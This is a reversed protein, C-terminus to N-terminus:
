QAALATVYANLKAPATARWATEGLRFASRLEAATLARQAAKAQACTWQRPGARAHTLGCKAGQNMQVCPQKFDHTCAFGTAFAYTCGDVGCQNAKPAAGDRVAAPKPSAHAYERAAVRAHNLNADSALDYALSSLENPGGHLSLLATISVENRLQLLGLTAGHLSPERLHFHRSVVVGKLMWAENWSLPPEIETMVYFDLTALLQWTLAIYSLQWRRHSGWAGSLDYPGRPHALHQHLDALRATAFKNWVAQVPIKTSRNITSLNIGDGLAIDTDNSWTKDGLPTLRYLDSGPGDLRRRGVLRELQDAYATRGAATPDIVAMVGLYNEYRERHVGLDHAGHHGPFRDVDPEFTDGELSPPPQSILAGRLGGAV